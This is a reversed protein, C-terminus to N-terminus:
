AKDGEQFDTTAPRRNGEVNSRKISWRMTLAGWAVGILLGFGVPTRWGQESGLASGIWACAAWVMAWWWETIKM